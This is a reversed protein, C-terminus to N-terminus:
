AERGAASVAAADAAVDAAGATQWSRNRDRRRQSRSPRAGIRGVAIAAAAQGSSVAAILAAAGDAGEQADLLAALFAASFADGAGSPDIIERAVSPVRVRTGDARAVVVGSEGLTLAVLPYNRLLSDVILEPDSLGTLATGEEINPIVIDVGDTAAVFRQAGLAAIESASGPDVSVTVGAAHARETLAVFDAPDAHGFVSYGTYHLHVVSALRSATIDRPTLSRNAGRQTLTTRVGDTETVVVVAGTPLDPEGMLHPTVGADVLLGTHRELDSVHVRGVFDVHRGAWALWAATNAASGGPRRVVDAAADGGRRVDAVPHVLIDDIVDGFVLIRNDRRATAM